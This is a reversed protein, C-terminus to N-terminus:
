YDRLENEIKKLREIMSEKYWNERGRLEGIFRVNYGEQLFEKAKKIKL